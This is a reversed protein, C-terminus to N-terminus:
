NYILKHTIPLSNRDFKVGQNEFWSQHLSAMLERATDPSDSIAGPANKVPAFEEERKVEILGFKEPKVLVFADFLFLEFKYANIEPPTIVESRTADYYNVKKKAVHYRYCLISFLGGSSFM